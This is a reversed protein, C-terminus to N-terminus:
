TGRKSRKSAVVSFNDADGGAALESDMQDAWSPSVKTQVPKKKGQPKGGSGKEKTPPQVPVPAAWPDYANQSVGWSADSRADATGSVIVAANGGSGREKTPPQVPVTWPDYVNDPVGCSADSKADVTGAPVIVAANPEIESDSNGWEDDSTAKTERKEITDASVIARPTGRWNTKVPAGPGRFPNNQMKNKNSSETEDNNKGAGRGKARAGKKGKNAGATKRQETQEARKALRLQKAYEACIGKKCIIGHANCLMPEATDQNQKWHDEADVLENDWGTGNTTEWTAAAMPEDWTGPAISDLERLDGDDELARIGMGHFEEEMSESFHIRVSYPNDSETATTLDPGSDSDPSSTSAGTSGWSAASFNAARDPGGPAVSAATRNPFALGPPRTPYSTAGSEWANIRAPLGPPAARAQHATAPSIAPLVPTSQRSVPASDDWNAVVPTSAPKKGTNKWVNTAKVTIPGGGVAATRVGIYPVQPIGVIKKMSGNATPNPKASTAQVKMAGNGWAGLANTKTQTITPAPSPGGERTQIWAASGVVPPPPAVVVPPPTKVAGPLPRCMSHNTRDEVPVDCFHTAPYPSKIQRNKPSWAKFWAEDVDIRKWGNKQVIRGTSYTCYFVQTIRGSEEKTPNQLFESWRHEGLIHDFQEYDRNVEIIVMARASPKHFIAFFANKDICSAVWRAFDQRDKPLEMNCTGSIAYPYVVTLYKPENDGPPPTPIRKPM